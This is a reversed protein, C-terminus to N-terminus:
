DNLIEKGGGKGKNVHCDILGERKKEELHFISTNIQKEGSSDGKKKKGM